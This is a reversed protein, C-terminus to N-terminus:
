VMMSRTLYAESILVVVAAVDYSSDVNVFVQKTQQEEATATTPGLSRGVAVGVSGLNCSDAMLCAVVSWSERCLLAM